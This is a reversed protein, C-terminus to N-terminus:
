NFSIGIELKNKIMKRDDNNAYTLFEIRDQGSSYGVFIIFDENICFKIVKMM